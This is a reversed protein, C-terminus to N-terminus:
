TISVFIGSIQVVAGGDGDKSYSEYSPHGDVGLARYGERNGSSM